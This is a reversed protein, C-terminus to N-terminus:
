EYLKRILQTKYQYRPLKEVVEVDARFILKERLLGEVHKKLDRLDGVQEGAEVKIRLPPKVVPGPSDLQIEIAGSARPKFSAVVDRIALPYVNVGLITLMDDTRGLVEIRFGTRGCLCRDTTIVRVQDRSRYRMLPMAQNKLATYVLEGVAGAKIEIPALTEPDILEVHVLGQTIYHMGHGRNERCEGFVVCVMEGMGMGEVAAAGFSEEIRPRVLKAGGEAGGIITRLGLQRPDIGSKEVEDLLYTWFSLPPM